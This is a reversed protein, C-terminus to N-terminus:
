KRIAAIACVRKSKYYQCEYRFFLVSNLEDAEAGAALQEADVDEANTLNQAISGQFRKLVCRWEDRAGNM